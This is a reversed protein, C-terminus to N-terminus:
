KVGSRTITIPTYFMFPEDGERVIWQMKVLSDLLLQVVHLPVDAALEQRLRHEPVPKATIRYLSEVLSRGLKLQDYFENAGISSVAHQMFSEAELLVAKAIKVEELTIIREDSRAAAFIMCLKSFHAMRRECYYLLRPDKPAPPLGDEKWRELADAADAEWEYEGTIHLMAEFDHILQKRVNENFNTKPARDVGRKKLETPVVIREESYVMVLRSPFGGELTQDSFREKLQKPTMGGAMVLCPNELHNEGSTKTSYDRVIPNDYLDALFSMFQEDNKKLFVAMEDILAVLAMHRESTGNMNVIQVSGELKEYFAEKTVDTPTLKLVSAKSAPVLIQDRVIKLATSKGSAPPGILLVYLNPYQTQGEVDMYARRQLAGSVACIGAWLRFIRPSKVGETFQLYTSIWDELIRSL